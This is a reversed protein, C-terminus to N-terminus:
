GLAIWMYPKSNTQCDTGVTFGKESVTIGDSSKKAAGSVVGQGVDVGGSGGQIFDVMVAQDSGDFYIVRVYVPKFGLEVNVAAKSSASKGGGYAAQGTALQFNGIMSM